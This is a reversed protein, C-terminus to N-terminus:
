PPAACTVMTSSVYTARVADAGPFLCALEPELGNVATLGALEVDIVTGGRAPGNAPSIGQLQGLAALRLQLGSTSFRQGDNAVEVDILAGETPSAGVATSLIWTAPVICRVFQEGSLPDVHFTGILLVGAASCRLWESDYLGTAVVDLVINEEGLFV